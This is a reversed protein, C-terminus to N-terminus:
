WKGEPIEPQQLLGLPQQLEENVKSCTLFKGIYTCICRKKEYTGHAENLVLEKVDGFKLVWVQNTFYRIGDDKIELQYIRVESAKNKLM